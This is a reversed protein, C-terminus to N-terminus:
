DLAEVLYFVLRADPIANGDEEGIESAAVVSSVDVTVNGKECSKKPTLDYIVQM